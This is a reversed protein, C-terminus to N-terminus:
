KREVISLYSFSDTKSVWMTIREPEIEEKTYNEMQYWEDEAQFVEKLIEQWIPRNTMLEKM